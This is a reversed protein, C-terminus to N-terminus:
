VFGELAGVRGTVRAKVRASVRIAQVGLRPLPPDEPLRGGASVGCIARSRRAPLPALEGRVGEM